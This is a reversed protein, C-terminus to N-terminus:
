LEVIPLMCLTTHTYIMSQVSKEIVENDDADKKTLPTLM